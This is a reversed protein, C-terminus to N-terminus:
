APLPITSARGIIIFGCKPDVLQSCNRSEQHSLQDSAGLPKQLSLVKAPVRGSAARCRACATHAHWVDTGRERAAASLTVTKHGAAMRTGAAPHTPLQVAPHIVVHTGLPRCHQAAGRAQGPQEAAVVRRCPQYMGHQPSHTHPQLVQSCLSSGHPHTAAAQAPAQTPRLIVSSFSAAAQQTQRPGKAGTGSVVQEETHSALGCAHKRCTRHRYLVGPQQAAGLLRSPGVAVAAAQGAPALPVQM